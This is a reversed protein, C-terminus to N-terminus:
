CGPANSSATPSLRPLQKPLARALMTHEIDAAAIAVKGEQKFKQSALHIRDIVGDWVVVVHAAHSEHSLFQARRYSNM